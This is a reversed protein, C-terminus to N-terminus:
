RQEGAARALCARWSSGFTLGAGALLLGLALALAQPIPVSSGTQPLTPPKVIKKGQVATVITRVENSPNKPTENADVAGTNLIVESPISGDAAAAPTDITVKFTVDFSDGVAMDRAPWTVTTCPDDCTGGDSASVFTTGAPVADTVVVGTLNAASPNTVHLTYTLTAGYAAEAQDVAKVVHVHAVPHHTENTPTSTEGEHLVAVNDITFPDALGDNVTVAFSVGGSGGAAVTRAWTLTGDALVGDGASGSVYTTGDPIADTITVDASVNGGNGYALTYTITDGDTVATGTVPDASKTLTMATYLKTNVFAVTAPTDSITAQGSGPVVESAWTADHDETVTCVETTPIGDIQHVLSLGEATGLHFDQLPDGDCSVHYTFDYPGSGGSNDVIAKTVVLSGRNRLNAFNVAQEDGIVVTGDAPVVTSTFLPNADETVTCSTGTPIDPITAHGTGGVTTISVNQVDYDTGDCDVDFTFTADVDSTKNIELAGRVRTNDFAVTNDGSGITVTGDAPVVQVTWHPDAQETVTCSVGTPIGTISASGTGGSTTITLTTDYANDTCDVPFHFTGDLDATKNVVLAGRVRTNTFAVTNDGTAITVTGDAPVVQTTWHADADETVTCTVGTPIGSISASGSGGSTTISVNSQDYADDSCDVDFTFTGDVDASKSIVLAGRLRTNTFSVTNDGTAIVVTGDGPTVISSFLPNSQETVTCSTGTPIGSISATGSGGSTTVTLTTDYANGDCDVDFHFTGDVDAAKMVVLAGTLRTNTYAVTEGDADITVTGTSPSRTTSFLANASETVTCQTGVVIQDSVLHTDTDGAAVTMDFPAYTNGDDCSVTFHFTGGGGVAHKSVSLSGLQHNVFVNVTQGAGVPITLNRPTADVLYGAPAATETVVCPTGSPGNIAITGDASVGSASVTTNPNVQSPNSLGTIITPPAATTPSCVVSFSAGGLLPGESSGSRKEIRLGGGVTFCAPGAKRNSAQSASPSQTTKVYNCFQSGLPTNAPIPVSFQLHFDVANPVFHVFYKAVPADTAAGPPDVYVCDTMAFDGGVDAADVPFDVVYGVVGGPNFDSPFTPDLRKHTNESGPTPLVGNCGNITPDPVLIPDSAIAAGAMMPLWVLATCLAIGASLSRHLKSM